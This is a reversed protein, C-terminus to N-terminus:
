SREQDDSEEAPLNVNITGLADLAALRELETMRHSSFKALEFLRTVEQTAHEPLRRHRLILQMFERATDGPRRPFSIRAAMREFRAYCQLIATRPDLLDELDALDDEDAQVRKAPTPAAGMETRIGFWAPLYLWVVFGLASIALALLFFAAAGSAPAWSGAPLARQALLSQLTALPNGPLGAPPKGSRQYWLLVFIGALVSLFAVVVLIGVIPSLRHQYPVHEYSDNEPKRKRRRGPALARVILVNLLVFAIGGLASAIWFVWSPLGLVLRVPPAALFGAPQQGFAGALAVILSIIALASRWLTNDDARQLPGSPPAQPGSPARANM